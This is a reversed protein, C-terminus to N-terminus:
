RPDSGTDLSVSLSGLQPQSPDPASVIVCAAPQVHIIHERCRIISNGVLHEGVVSSVTSHGDETVM